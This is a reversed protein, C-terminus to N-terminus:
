LAFIALFYQQSVNINSKKIIYERFCRLRNNINLSLINQSSPEGPLGSLGQPQKLALGLTSLARMAHFTEVFGKWLKKKLFVPKAVRAFSGITTCSINNFICLSTAVYKTIIKGKRAIIWVFYNRVQPNFMNLQQGAPTLPSM